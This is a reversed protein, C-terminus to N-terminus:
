IKAHKAKLPIQGLVAESILASKYDKLGQIQTQLKAILTDLKGLRHDLFTAIAHQEQLPPVPLLMQQFSMFDISERIKMIGYAYQGLSQQLAKSAFLSAYYRMSHLNKNQIFLVLYIPSVLGDYNSVGLSGIVANMKNLVLDGSRVVQYQSLDTKAKNGINGKELYPLVGIDKVLSLILTIDRDRNFENRAKFIKRLPVLEWHGPIDGLWAVGSPKFREQPNLGKTAVQFILAQKYEKLLALMREKKAICATIKACKHDLFTAIAHQEKLPPLPIKLTKLNELRVEIVKIGSAYKAKLSAFYATQFVYAIFKPNQKHTYALTHGGICIDVNGLYAVSKCVGEVDESVCAIILDGHRAKKLQQALAPSVFSKTQTTYTNYYTHIQGYHIAGILTGDTNAPHLDAKTLGNGRVFEGIDGLRVWKM